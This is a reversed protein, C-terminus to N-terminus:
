LQALSPLKPSSPPRHPHKVSMDRIEQRLQRIEVKQLQIVMEKEDHLNLRHVVDHISSRPALNDKAEAAQQKQGKNNLRLQTEYNHVQSRLLRLEGRLNNIETILTVNEQMIKVNETSHGMSTRALKQKMSALSRELHEQHRAYEMQIANDLGAIDMMDSKHIYRDHLDKIALKLRQPEQIFAVCNHLDTKFRKMLAQGDLVRQIEKHLENETAALKVRLKSINLQQKINQTHFSDLEKEMEQIQDRMEKIDDERPEIQKRLEKIKYDLVFKFKELEQNKKKLDYMRREKDQITEDRELIEKKLTQTDKEMSKIVAQLRNQEGKMREFQMNKDDIEKQLSSFKKKIIGTDGKMKLNTEREETLLREYRLHLDQIEHDSDEEMQRKSEEFERLQMRAEEQCQELLLEKEKMTGEYYLTLGQLAAEKEQVMTQLQLKYNAQMIQSKGQLEKYKEYELLLKKSSTSELDQVEKSHKKQSDTMVEQHKAELQGKETKLIQIKTNLSEMQHNFTETLDKMKDNYNMDKLRLQYDNEMKLEEMRTRLELIIQNKEELDTKTILIEEAYCLEKDRKLGRGEKDILKWTILCGDKSVSLLYQDDFTIVMKTVASAHAQYEIWERQLSLPYRIVRVTGISTGTFLTRGSRSMVVSTYTVDESSVERLIQCDQIEKLTYDTGVVFISKNDPSLSIGTYSCSKLVSESERKGTLTNWEYVAGDMGCSVLRSDDGSWIISLVKANHGKLNLINEFTTTSFIHIINGSVAAFMHGGNSFACERCGRVTFEKFLRIDDILLNMLCLKSSFGVLVYLGSPHLAICFAEEQFEKYLELINTEFNWIRVSQDLSCTAIIPKRICVSLGTISGSHFSHSLHEFHALEGKSMEATSLTFSYLQNFDTSTVVTEETPTIVLSMIQQQEARGPDSRCPDQPIRIERTKRYHDKEETKEYLLVKGPGAACAFGKSYATIVTVRPMETQIEKKKLSASRSCGSKNDAPGQSAKSVVSMDWHLDGSEFVMLRGKETGAIIREESVWAHCLINQTDLKQFATQKLIGEMFRFVKLVGYGTVCIQTNDYPSFSVQSIPNPVITTKVTAIVKQREWMWYLLMWDPGGSQAIFYKSDPSFCMSVFEFVALDGGTLVKRKRCQEHQLDYVTIMAREGRESVALYRKNPSIALAYMGQSKELGPIFRQCKQDINYRVCNNGSPFIVTQEDVCCVNNAVGTRLGFVHHCQAVLAAM